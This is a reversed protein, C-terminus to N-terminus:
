HAAVYEKLVGDLRAQWGTGTAKFHEVVDASLRITTLVKTPAKQPGRVGARQNMHILKAYLQPPLAQKAPKLLKPDVESLDGVEGNEDIMPYRTVM